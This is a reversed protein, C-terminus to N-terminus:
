AHVVTQESAWGHWPPQQLPCAHTEPVVSFSHPFEESQAQTEHAFLADPLAHTGPPVHPQAEALSQALLEDPGSHRVVPRHPQVRLVSHGSKSAHAPPAHEVLHEEVSGHLPPHQKKPAHTEPVASRCHPPAPRAQKEHAALAAPVAHRGLPTQPQVEVASQAVRAAPETHM